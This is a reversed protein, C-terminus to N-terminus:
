PSKPSKDLGATQVIHVATFKHKKKRNDLIIFWKGDMYYQVTSNVVLILTKRDVQRLTLRYRDSQLVVINSVGRMPVAALISGVPLMATGNDYSELDQSIVKASHSVPPKRAAAPLALCLTVALLALKM